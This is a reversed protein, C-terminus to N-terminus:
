LGVPDPCNNVSKHLIVNKLEVVTQWTILSRQQTTFVLYVTKLKITLLAIAQCGGPPVNLLNKLYKIMSQYSM